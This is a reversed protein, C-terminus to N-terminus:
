DLTTEIGEDGDWDWDVVCVSLTSTVLMDWGRVM